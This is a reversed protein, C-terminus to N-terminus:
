SKNKKKNKPVITNNDSNLYSCKKNIIKEINLSKYKKKINKNNENNKKEYKFLSNSSNIKNNNNFNNIKNKSLNINSGNKNLNNYYKENSKNKEVSKTEFTKQKLYLYKHKKNIQNKMNNNNNAYNKNNNNNNENLFKNLNFKNKKIIKINGLTKTKFSNKNIVINNIIKKEESENKFEKEINKFFSSETINTSIIKNINNNIKINLENILSDNNSLFSSNYNIINNLDKKSNFSLSLSRNLINQIQECFQSKITESNISNAININSHFSFKYVNEEKEINNLNKIYNKIIKNISSNLYNILYKKNNNNNKNKFYNLSFKYPFYISFFENLDDYILFDKFTSVFHLNKNYIVNNILIRFYKLPIINYKKLNKTIIKNFINKEM